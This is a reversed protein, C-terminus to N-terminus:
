VLFFVSLSDTSSLYYDTLNFCSPIDIIKNQCLWHPKQMVNCALATHFVIIVATEKCKYCHYLPYLTLQYVVIGYIYSNELYTINATKESSKSDAFKEDKFNISQSRVCYFLFAIYIFHFTYSSRDSSASLLVLM